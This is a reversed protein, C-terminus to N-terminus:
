NYFVSFTDIIIVIILLIVTNTDTMTIQKPYKVVIVWPTSLFAGGITEGWGKEKGPKWWKEQKVLFVEDVKKQESWIIAFLLAKESYFM